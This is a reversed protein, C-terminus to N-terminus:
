LKDVAAFFDNWLEQSDSHIDLQSALALIDQLEDDDDAWDRILIASSVYAIGDVGHKITDELVTLDGRFLLAESSLYKIDGAVAKIFDVLVQRSASDGEKRLQSYIKKTTLTM